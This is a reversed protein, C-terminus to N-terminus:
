HNSTRRKRRDRERQLDTVSAGARPRALRHSKLLEDLLRTEPCKLVQALRAFLELSPVMRGSEIQSVTTFHCQIDAALEKQTMGLRTRMTRVYEM